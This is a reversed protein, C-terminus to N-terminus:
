KAKLKLLLSGAAPLQVAYTSGSLDPLSAGSLADIVTYAAGGLQTQSLDLNVQAPGSGFNFVGLMTDDAARRVLAYVRDSGEVRM